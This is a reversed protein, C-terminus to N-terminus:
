PISYRGQGIIPPEIYLGPRGGLIGELLVLKAGSELSPYQIQIRKPELQYKRMQSIVHALQEASYVLAVRGKPKLIYRAAKLVDQLSAMIEHRAIAKQREPNIRGSKAKRYPPNCVVLDACGATIPCARLDGVVVSMKGEAKNLTSNRLAQSALDEQIELGIAKCLHSKMILMLLVIGCGTGLEVVVDDKKVKVFDALFISDISFRYGSISQIILLKGDLFPDIAEGPKLRLDETHKSFKM